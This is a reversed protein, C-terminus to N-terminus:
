PHLQSLFALVADRMREVGPPELPFHGCNTLREFTSEGAIRAVFRESLAAPTWRDEDPHLVLIPGGAYDEPEVSFPENILTRLFALQMKAGGVAPDHKIIEVLRPDNAITGLSSFWRMPLRVRDTLSQTFNLLAASLGVTSPTRALARRVDDERPDNLMTAIAGAVRSSTAALNYASIGGISMGFAVFPRDDDASEHEIFDSLCEVWSPYTVLAEEDVETMGFGPLDPALVEYGADAVLRAAPLLMRGNGGGGHVMLVRLGRASGPVLRDVHITHGRWPWWSEEPATEPTSRMHEPFLPQYRLWYGDEAYTKMRLLTRPHCTCHSWNRVPVRSPNDM